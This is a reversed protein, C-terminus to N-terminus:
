DLHSLERPIKEKIKDREETAKELNNKTEALETTSNSLRILNADLNSYIEEKMM